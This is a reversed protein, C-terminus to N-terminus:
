IRRRDELFEKAKEVNAPTAELVRGREPGIANLELDKGRSNQSADLIMTYSTSQLIELLYFQM